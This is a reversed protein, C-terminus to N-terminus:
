RKSSVVVVVIAIIFGIIIPVAVFIILDAMIRNSNDGDSTDDEHVLDGRSADMKSTLKELSATIFGNINGSRLLDITGSEFNAKSPLSGLNSYSDTPILAYKKLEPSVVLAVSNTTKENFQLQGVASDAQQVFDDTTNFGNAVYVVVRLGNDYMAYNSNVADVKNKTDQTITKTTDNVLDTVNTDYNKWSGSWSSSSSEAANASPAAALMCYSVMFVMFVLGIAKM